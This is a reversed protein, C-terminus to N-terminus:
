ERPPDRSVIGVLGKRGLPTVKPRALWAGASISSSNSRALREPTGM